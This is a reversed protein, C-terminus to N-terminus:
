SLYRNSYLCTTILSCIEDPSIHYPDTVVPTNANTAINSTTDTTTTTIQVPDEYSIYSLFTFITIYLLLM